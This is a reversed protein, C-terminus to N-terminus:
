QLALVIIVFAEFALRRVETSLPLTANGSAVAEVRLLQDTRAATGTSGSGDARLVPGIEKLVFAPVAARDRYPKAKAGRLDVTGM